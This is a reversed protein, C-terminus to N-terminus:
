YTKSYLLECRYCQFTVVIKFVIEQTTARILNPTSLECKQNSLETFERYMESDDKIM